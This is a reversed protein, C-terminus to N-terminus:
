LGGSVYGLYFGNAYKGDLDDGVFGRAFGVVETVTRRNLRERNQTDVLPRTEGFSSVAELKARPVGRAVMYNVAAQARRLGLRQNYSNSGVKDTHGYVRFRIAPNASIWAAQRDLIARAETDLVTSNFAFNIMDPTAARFSNSLDALIGGKLYASQAVVNNASASGFAKSAADTEGATNLLATTDCGSVAIALLLPSTKLLISKM